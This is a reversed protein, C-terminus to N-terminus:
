AKKSVDVIGSFMAVFETDAMISLGRSLEVPDCTVVFTKKNFDEFVEKTKPDSHRRKKNDAHGRQQDDSPEEEDTSGPRPGLTAM